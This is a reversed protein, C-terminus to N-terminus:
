LCMTSLSLMLRPSQHCKIAINSVATSVFCDFAEIKVEPKCGYKWYDLPIDRPHGNEFNVSLAQSRSM